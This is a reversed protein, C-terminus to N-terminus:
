PEELEDFLGGSLALQENESQAVDPALVAPNVLTSEATTLHAGLWIGVAAAAAWGLAPVCLSRLHLHRTLLVTGRKEPIAALHEILERPLTPAVTMTLWADLARQEAALIRASGSAELLELAAGREREPWHEPRTGYAELLARFRLQSLPASNM